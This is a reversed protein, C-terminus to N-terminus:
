ADVKPPPGDITVFENYGPPLPEATAPPVSSAPLQSPLPRSALAPFPKARPPLLPKSTRYGYLGWGTLAVGIIRLLWAIWTPRSQAAKLRADQKDFAAKAATYKGKAAVPDYGDGKSTGRRDQKQPLMTTAAHLDASAKQHEQFDADTWPAGVHAASILLPAVFMLVVGVLM